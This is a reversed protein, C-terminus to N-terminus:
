YVLTQIANPQIAVETAATGICLYYNITQNSQNMVVTVMKGTENRFSTTLLQSRSAASSVRKAGKEIFKSFHGIFYYSPTYILEGTNTDAHIPAFCFNKVHNPGGNQDLLINWDTWAVTGNNFDNIMSKGYRQGNKWLQYKQADFKEVCGETFMLKKSPYLENVKGVNEYMQEGGSWSEYWHFGIGWVYKAAEPDELVTNARQLLLDRNHDWVTIKKDGMGARKLTPGLYNKLFDREETASYICSEWTQKAMPENQVTLGWVPIGEKQLANIYKVYYNAWSQYYEPLLKGGQLMSKNDKMFAPPSWPSIYFTAKSGIIGLAKKILPIKFQKDHKIDFTKLEKDGEAVYTYSDSSFDCSNMNTRLLTYAIGKEKSFYAELFEQQKEPSLKAFVEASADTIAGGIGIFTQFTKNPNVFICTQTELPQKLERFPLDATKSLRLNTSDASTYVTVIKGKTSFPQPLIKKKSQGTASFAITLFFIILKKM